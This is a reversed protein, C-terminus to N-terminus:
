LILKNQVVVLIKNRFVFTETCKFSKMPEKRGKPYMQMEYSSKSWLVEGSAKM